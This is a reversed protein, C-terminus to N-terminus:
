FFTMVAFFHFISGALVFLHFICHFWKVKKFIYFPWGVIYLAGGVGLFIISILPIHALLQNMAFLIMLGMPLYTIASIIRMRNGFISYFTVGFIALGWIIGFMIWGTMSEMACLCFPTYTGAILIYISCHDFVAFVNKVNYPTLAHYLTSMLYLILLSIGFVIFSSISQAKIEQPAYLAAKVILLVLAAVSLGAGVGHSVSNFIEEGISYRKPMSKTLAKNKLHREHREAYKEPDAAYKLKIQYRDELYKEKLSKLEERKRNM